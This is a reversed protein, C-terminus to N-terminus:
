AWTVGFPLKYSSFELHLVRRSSPNSGKSSAHLLHPRMILAAGKNVVCHVPQSQAMYEDIEKQKLIGLEHSYPVVKLCGNELNSPDLHVRLAVMNELVHLPPQVHIINDKVSWPHWGKSEFKQSVSVTKDQHWSVLWNQHITKNFFIARVFKPEGSLYKAATQLVLDSEIFRMVSKSKKEINRIGGRSSQLTIPSISDSLENSLSDPIFNELIEYGKELM